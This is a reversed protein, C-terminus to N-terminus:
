QEGHYERAVYLALFVGALAGGHLLRLVLLAPFSAALAECAGLGTALLLTGVFVARRGFRISLLLCLHLNLCNLSTLPKFIPPSCFPLPLKEGTM